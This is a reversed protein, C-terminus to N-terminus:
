IQDELHSSLYMLQQVDTEQGGEPDLKSDSLVLYKAASLFGIPNVVAFGGIPIDGLCGGAPIVGKFRM